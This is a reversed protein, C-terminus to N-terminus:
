KIFRICLPYRYRAGNSAKVAAIICFVIDVVWVCAALIAGICVFMLVCSVAMAILVTIQFNVSEKGHEDIFPDEDKKLLWIILPAVFGTFIALLHCLLAMNRANKGVELPQAEAGQEATASPPAQEVVDSREPEKPAKKKKAM